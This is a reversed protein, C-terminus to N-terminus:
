NIKVQWLNWGSVTKAQPAKPDRNSHFVLTHADLWAVGGDSAGVANTIREIRYSKMDMVYISTNRVDGKSDRNSVFALKTGDPSWSPEFEGFDDTTLQTLDSGDVGQVWLDYNGNLERVFAIRHGDPSVAGNYANPIMTLQSSAREFVFLAPPDFKNGNGTKTPAYGMKYRFNNSDYIRWGQGLLESNNVNGFENLLENYRTKEFTSDFCWVQGNSSANLHQPALAGRYTGMNAIAVHGDGHAQKMWASIPGLRSSVYGVAGDSIAVGYWVAEGVATPRIETGGSQIARASVQVVSYDNVGKRRDYVLFDGAVSPYVLDASKESLLLNVPYLPEPVKNNDAAFAAGAVMVAALGAAAMFGQKISKMACEKDIM